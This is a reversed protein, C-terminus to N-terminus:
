DHIDWKGYQDENEKTKNYRVRQRYGYMINKVSDQNELAVGISGALTAISTALWALKVYNGFSTAEKLSALSKFLDPPVFLLSTLLFLVYLAMYYVSIAIILSLVTARNYLKSIKNEDKNAPKEWLEHAVIIWVILCLIAALMLGIFRWAELSASIQWLTPFILGYAGTAFAVAVIQKFAPIITWPRNALTMGFMLRVKGHLRPRIIYHLDVKEGLTTSDVRKIMSLPFEKKNLSKSHNIRQALAREKGDETLGIAYLEKMIHIITKRVNHRLPFFGFAPISLQAIGQKFDADALVVDKGDYLPLDTLCFAYDWGKRKKIAATEDMLVKTKEAAGILPDTIVDVKWEIESSISRTLFRPLEKALRRALITPLDPSPILGIQIVSM